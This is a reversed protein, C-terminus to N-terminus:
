NICCPNFSFCMTPQITEFRWLRGRQWASVVLVAVGKAVAFKAVAFKAVAREALKAVALKAVPAAERSVLEALKAVALKAVPAAERRMLLRAM